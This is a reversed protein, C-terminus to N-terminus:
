KVPPASEIRRIISLQEESKEMQGMDRYANSLWRRLPILRPNLRLGQEAAEIGEPLRGAMRLMDARHGNLTDNMPNIKVLRDAYALGEVVRNSQYCLHVMAALGSESRPDHTLSQMAYREAAELNGSKLAVETLATMVRTDDPAIELGPSLLREVMLFAPVQGQELMHQIIALGASRNVEWEPLRKDAGDFFILRESPDHPITTVASDPRAAVRHDTQSTHAIDTAPLRPMHCEFCSNKAKHSLREPLAVGCDVEQHCKLCRDRYFNTLEEEKPSRHPDHCSTCGFRGNSQVYCQSAMMQQVQSVSKTKGDKTIGVGSLFVILVEELRQGPRFDFFSRGYRPIRAAAQLHCQNCVSEREAPPLKAPNVIPDNEVGSKNRRLQVHLRGPGHCNECGISMQPFPNAAYRNTMGPETAVRGAHCALCEDVIRRSFGRPDDPIFGPALDWRNGNAYWTISSMLMVDNHSSLYSRGREGSGISYHIPISRDYILEGQQDFMLEAHTLESDGIQRVRYVCRGGPRFMVETDFTDVSSDNAVSALSRSMPHTAYQEAVSAHCDVCAADGVFGDTAPAPRIAMPRSPAESPQLPADALPADEVATPPVLGWVLSLLIVGGAGSVGWM